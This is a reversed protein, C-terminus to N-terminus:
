KAFLGLAPLSFGGTSALQREVVGYDDTTVQTPEEHTFQHLQIEKGM